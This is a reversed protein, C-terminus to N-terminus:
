RPRSASQFTGNLAGNMGPSSNRDMFRARTGDLPTGTDNPEYLSQITYQPHNQPTRPAYPLAPNHPNTLKQGPNHAPRTIELGPQTRTAESNVPDNTDHRISHTTSPEPQRHM